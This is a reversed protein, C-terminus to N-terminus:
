SIATRSNSNSSRRCSFSTALQFVRFRQILSSPKGGPLSIPRLRTQVSASTIVQISDLGVPLAARRPRAFISVSAAWHGSDDLLRVESPAPQVKVKTLAPLWDQCQHGVLGIRMEVANSVRVAPQTSRAIQRS